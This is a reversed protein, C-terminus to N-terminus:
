ANTAGTATFHSFYDSLVDNPLPQPKGKTEGLYLFGVISEEATLGLGDMVVTDYAYGGTRWIAGVQQAYAANLMNQVAAGTAIVQEVVPVKPHDKPSAIAVIIMPARLPKKLLKGAAVEPLEGQKCQEAKVFLEGLYVRADGELMLFRWPRLRGHDAARLAAKQINMLVEGSPAEGELRPSSQRSVLATIADM